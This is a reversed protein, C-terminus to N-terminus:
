RDAPTDGTNYTKTVLAMTLELGTVHREVAEM